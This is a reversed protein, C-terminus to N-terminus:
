RYSQTFSERTVAAQINAVLDEKLYPKGIVSAFGSVMYEEIDEKMVNATCAIIPKSYNATKLASIASLGDMVPMQIDMFVLDYENALAKEVAVEGNEALDITYPCDKLLAGFIMRNTAVDEALLIRAPHLKTIDIAGRKDTRPIETEPLKVRVTFRTGIGVESEVSIDGDM